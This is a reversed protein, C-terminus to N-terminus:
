EPGSEHAETRAQVKANTVKGDACEQAYQLTDIDTKTAYDPQWVRAVELVARLHQELLSARAKADAEWSHLLDIASAQEELADACLKREWSETGIQNAYAPNIRSRLDAILDVPTMGIELTPAWCVSGASEGGSREPERSFSANPTTLQAAVKDAVQILTEIADWRAAKARLAEIEDAAEELYHKQQGGGRAAQGNAYQRGMYRLKAVLEM